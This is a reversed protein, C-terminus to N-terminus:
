GIKKLDSMQKENKRFDSMYENKLIKQSRVEHNVRRYHNPVKEVM